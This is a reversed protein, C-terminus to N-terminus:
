LDFNKKKKKAKRDLTILFDTEFRARGEWQGARSPNAFGVADSDANFRATAAVHM